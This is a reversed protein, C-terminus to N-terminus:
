SCLQLEVRVRQLPTQRSPLTLAKLKVSHLAARRAVCEEGICDVHGFRKLIKADFESMVEKVGM